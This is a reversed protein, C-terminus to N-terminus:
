RFDDLRRPAALVARRGQSASATLGHAALPSVCSALAKLSDTLAEGVVLCRELRLVVGDDRRRDDDEPANQAHDGAKCKRAGDKPGEGAFTGYAPTLALSPGWFVIHGQGGGALGSDRNRGCGYSLQISRQGGFASTV